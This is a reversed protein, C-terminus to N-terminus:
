NKMSCLAHYMLVLGASLIAGGAIDTFWHVGSLLRAIVMFATFASIVSNVAYRVARNKIRWRVQIMAAPMVCMTLLTTSSPYSAELIGDILVPRYNIVFIEFFVFAAMVCIYFGGLLLIDRDIKRINRRKIWQVLGLVGFMVCVSVPVLGLIDTINYLFFNTGTLRHVFRNIAAFGVATDCPGALQVDIFRVAVTWLVFATLFAAAVAATKTSRKM